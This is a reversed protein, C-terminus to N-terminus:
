KLLVMSKTKSFNDTSMRYFYVGSGINDAEFKVSYEGADKTEHLVTTVKQGLINFVEIKVETKEPIFFSIICTSNFPNPYADGLSYRLPTPASSPDSAIRPLGVGDFGLPPKEEFWAQPIEYSQIGSERSYLELILAEGPYYYTDIIINNPYYLQGTELGLTGYFDFLKMLNPGYMQIMGAAKNAIYIRGHDDVALGGPFRIFDGWELMNVDSFIPEEDTNSRLLLIPNNVEETIYISTFGQLTDVSYPFCEVAIPKFLEFLVIDSEPYFIEHWAGEVNESTIDIRVLEGAGSEHGWDVVYLDASYLDQDGYASIAVDVPWELYGEGLIRNFKFDGGTTDPFYRLELIRDKGRDAVYIVDEEPIFERNIANTALGSPTKLSDSEDGYYAKIAKLQRYGSSDPQTCVWATLRSMAMDSIVFVDYIEGEIETHLILADWPCIFLSAASDTWFIAFDVNMEETIDTKLFTTREFEPQPLEELPIGAGVAGAAIALAAIFSLITKNM